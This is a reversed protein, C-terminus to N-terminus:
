GYREPSTYNLFKPYEKAFTLEVDGLAGNRHKAIIIDAIGARETEKDYYEERYIFAVLDADQEIQGSNHTVIGDALWCAPGPVTLDFVEEEGADDIAVVRDWFLDSESARRLGDDHLLAAYDATVQRSPAFAFHSAGGYSTGRLSAMARQSIGQAEMATRVSPWIEPPLTDVNTTPRTTNLMIRLARAHRACPGFAGVVDLFRQQDASGSVVVNHLLSQSPQVVANIRAVIGLRLLLAAVDAALGSSATSFALRAQLRGDSRSGTWLTGDTAWLHQVLLAIQRSPLRFAAQPVRKEASRQNWIGLERLWLGLGAPHWRNGNGAIVLQHWNGRGPHRSVRAGFERVAAGGVAASNDESATTYRLPQHTLYSGDGILHGLLIVRDDSWPCPREPEPLTRALAVRDGPALEGLTRWGSGARVRHERTARLLRGSALRMAVIPRRGVSWVRDARATTVVDDDVTVVEPASDVLAAIPVRSGDALVVLTDGTVCERLDSLIPRKDTRSEVARSLQSLAIVPVNLERALIKLGRSMQGVQEVRSEVRGDPRLLQLYDVIIMGLPAQQHLRRAKARIELIGVDSSDDVYLPAAALRGSAELIKPWKADAVRGKRLEDGKIRAQSAVFRQALESESMELSFLAVPKGHDISANEAMNTVLASNHVILDDAVFNHHVPVTLDFTEEEGIPEISLIEDWWLDSTALDGLEDDGSWDALKQLQPRSLGRTHVHWNHNSPHGAARSVESWPRDGKVALVRDWVGVPLTDVNTGNGVAKLGALARSAQPAKGCVDVLNCFREIGAQGTIRVERAVTNTGEYVERKLVRICSVIGLRLLLHQVDRALRESITSYGVQRLRDTAYIHGDCAYLIGLFRAIQRDGLGFIADPIFKDDSRKGWIGHRRCLEKVPNGNPSRDGCMHADFNPNPTSKRTAHWRAGIENAALRMEHGVASGEAYTFRPTRQTLSGDAILGALLVIEHDPMLQPQDPRPLNRPVGIRSGPELEDVRKWGDLTLLPHNATLDTHRGLRTSVRFLPRVGNRYTASVRARRLRLDPGVAVVWVEEGSEHLRVVEDLRRRTGDIPDYIQISGGCCKGMSPRAAIIILNGPQFGGTIEDLDRFGSPTGTLSTHERSLREMKKLEDDLIEDITRFDKKRDDHAVELMAREAQEVLERPAAAHNLVSAQIEYTTSLLRRMLAHERVIQAYRRIGGLGPVGGTLEDVAGKGGTEELKGTSRLHESVTLVDIPESERYLALMAEYILRHRERYFDEPKLGEEIVLGYMARDSLLIGGLVSQEAELSHPPAVGTAIQAPPRGPPASDPYSSL